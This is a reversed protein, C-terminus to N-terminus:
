PLVQYASILVETGSNKRSKGCTGKDKDGLGVDDFIGQTSSLWLGEIYATASKGPLENWKLYKFWQAILSLAVLFDAWVVKLLCELGSLTWAKSIHATLLGAPDNLTKTKFLVPATLFSTTVFLVGAWQGTGQRVILCFGKLMPIEVLQESSGNIACFCSLLSCEWAKALRLEFCVCVKQELEVEKRGLILFLDVHLHYPPSLFGCRQTKKNKNNPLWVKTFPKKM